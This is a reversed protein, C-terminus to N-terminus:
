RTIKKVVMVVFIALIFAGMFAESAAVMRTIGVPTVDGYGLTTFTVVSFYLCELFRNLNFMFGENLSMSIITGEFRVGLLAYLVAYILIANVSLLVVKFPQEGYGSFVDLLKSALRELSFLPLQYRQMIMERRFFHGALLGYGQNDHVIRLNRYVEEAEHFLHKKETPDSSQHALNEQLVHEGWDVSDLNAKDFITGLMNTNHLKAGHMNAGKLNAKMLSSHSLDLNRLHAGRLNARYLDSHTLAYGHRHGHNVLDIEHLDANALQYGYMNQMDKAHAQFHLKIAPDTLVQVSDHWKCYEGEEILGGCPQGHECVYPCTKILPDDAERDSQTSPQAQEFLQKM